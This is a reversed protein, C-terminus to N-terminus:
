TLDRWTLESNLGPWAITLGDSLAPRVSFSSALRPPTPHPPTPLLQAVRCLLHGFPYLCSQLLLLHKVVSCCVDPTPTGEWWSVLKPECASSASAWADMCRARRRTLRARSKAHMGTLLPPPRILRGGIFVRRPNPLDMSSVYVANQVMSHVLIIPHISFISTNSSTQVIYLTGHSVLIVWCVVKRAAIKAARRGMEVVVTSKRPLPTLTPPALALHRPIHSGLFSPRHSCAFSNM